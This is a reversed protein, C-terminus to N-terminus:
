AGRDVQRGRRKERRRPSSLNCRGKGARRSGGRSTAQGPLLAKAASVKRALVYGLYELLVGATEIKLSGGNLFRSLSPQKVGTDRAIRYQSLKRRAIEGRLLNGLSANPTRAAKKM